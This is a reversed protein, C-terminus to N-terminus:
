RVPSIIGCKKPKTLPNKFFIFINKIQENKTAKEKVFDIKYPM